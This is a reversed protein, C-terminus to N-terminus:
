QQVGYLLWRAANTSYIFQGCGAATTSVDSGTMTTIRNAATEDGNEHAFTLNQAVLNVLLIRDGDQGAPFGAIVFAGTPGTVKLASNNTITTFGAAYNTGNTCTLSTFPTTTVGRIKVRNTVDLSTLKVNNTAGIGNALAAASYAHRKAITAPMDGTQPYGTTISPDDTAFSSVVALCMLSLLLSLHKM